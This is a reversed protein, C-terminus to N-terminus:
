AAVIVPVFGDCDCGPLCPPLPRDEKPIESRRDHKMGLHGCEVCELKAEAQWQDMCTQCLAHYPGEIEEGTEEDIISVGYFLDVACFYRGCGVGYGADHMGGCCYTLGRDIATECGERDCTAEVGYGIERGERNVGFAWSM